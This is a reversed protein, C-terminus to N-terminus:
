PLPGRPWSSAPRASRAAAGARRPCRGTSASPRRAWAAACRRSGRRPATARPFSSASSPPTPRPRASSASACTRATGTRAARPRRGTWRLAYPQDHWLVPRVLAALAALVQVHDVHGGLGAPALVLEAGSLLPALAARVEEVIAADAGRPGAFLAPASDYGRHPAEPFPLHVPPRGLGLRRVAEADEARRLAMYDVEPGLGKDLQCGLAFGAPDPVSATFVTVVQVQWNADALRALTAGASFVADDLHPSVAVARMARECCTRPRASAAPCASAPFRGRSPAPMPARARTPTQILAAVRPWAYTAPGGRAGRGAAPRAARRRRSAACSRPSAPSTGPSTCSGTRGTACATWWAWPAGPSSPCGCAMAELVTNSFGEAYTPSVFVDAQAYIAPCRTTPCTASSSSPCAARRRARPSSTPGSAASWCGPGPVAPLAAILDLMGKRRDVRGHYLLTTGGGPEPDAAPGSAPPTSRGPVLSFREARAGVREVVEDRFSGCGILLRGAHECVVRMADMHTACCDGVWHGDGGQISVVSPVGLRRAAEMAAIGTPYGYQAHVVDFPARALVQAVLDDVDREFDGGSQEGLAERGVVTVGPVAPPPGGGYIRTGEEDGRYQSVMTVDHGAAVLERLLNEAYVSMGSIAPFFRRSVFCIRV